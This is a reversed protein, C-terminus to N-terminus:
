FKEVGFSISYGVSGSDILQTAVGIVASSCKIINNSRKKHIIQKRFNLCWADNLLRSFLSFLRRDELNRLKPHYNLM